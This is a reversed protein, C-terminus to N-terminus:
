SVVRKVYRVQDGVRVRELPQVDPDLAQIEGRDILSHVARSFAPRSCGFGEPMRRLDAIVGDVPVRALIERQVTGLPRKM